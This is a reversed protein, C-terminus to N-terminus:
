NTIVREAHCYVNFGGERMFGILTIGLEEALEASLSSPASVGALIPIGAAATKQVIEFSQRGSVMLVTGALPTMGAALAYGIVKDVANHRGIDERVVVPPNGAALSDIGPVRFLAAAHLGGTSAFIEQAARMEAGLSLLFDPRVLTADELPELSLRLADISTKGCLGCSSSIALNRKLRKRLADAPVHLIVDVINPEPHGRRDRVRRIEGIEDAHAIFGETLLFGAVLEEDHGPTRMTVSFRTGGLRIELPEEVALHDLEERAAGDRWKLAPRDHVFDNM